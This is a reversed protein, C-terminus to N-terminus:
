TTPLTALLQPLQHRLTRTKVIVGAEASDGMTGM